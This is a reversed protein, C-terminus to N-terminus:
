NVNITGEQIAFERIDSVYTYSGVQTFTYNFSEGPMLVSSEFAIGRINQPRKGYNTWTVTTGISINLETPVFEYEVIGVQQVAQKLSTFNKAETKSEIKAEQKSESNSNFAFYLAALALLAILLLFHAKNM